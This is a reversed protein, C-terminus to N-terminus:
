QGAGCTQLASLLVAAGASVLWLLGRGPSPVEPREEDEAGAPPTAGELMAGFTAPPGGIREGCHVCRKTGPAFSCQCRYCRVEYPTTPQLGPAPHRLSAASDRRM